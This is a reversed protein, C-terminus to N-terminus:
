AVSGGGLAQGLPLTARVEWGGGARPGATLVGHHVSVRERMGHLGHGRGDDPSAAGIGNDCVSIRLDDGSRAVVVEAEAGPGAHKIVNTLAEQVVRYAALDIGVPLGDTLADVDGASLRVEVGAGRVRDVLEGLQSLGGAPALEAGSEPDRLVGVLRRTETLADRATAGITGLAAVARPLAGEPRREAAYGAGDAQVVIVSLAHAVVDHMERAVAAREQQAALRLEQEREREIREAREQLEALRELRTRKLDGLMWASLAAAGFAAFTLGLFSGSVPPLGVFRASGVAAAVFGSALGVLRARRSREYAALSYIAPLFVVDAPLVNDWALVRLALALYVASYALTPRRRRVVLAFVLVATVPGLWWWGDVGLAVFEAGFALAFFGALPVDLLLPRRQLWDYVTREIM